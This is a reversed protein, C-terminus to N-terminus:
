KGTYHYVHGSKRVQGERVLGSMIQEFVELTMGTPMLAAYLPGAPAGQVGMEKVSEVIAVAVMRLVNNVKEQQEHGM